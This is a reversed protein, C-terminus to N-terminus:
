GKWNAGLRVLEDALVSPKDSIVGDVGLVVLREIEEPDDITWVHVALGCAHAADVFSQDVVTVSGLRAPVQLAVYRGLDEPPPAGTQLRHYFETTADTGAAIGIGPAWKAFAAVAADSFSAVIVDDRRGHEVLERALTEEYPAVKPATRKIDLNLLVGPFAALVESLTAVGFDRDAPARGRLVYDDAPRGRVADEGPCFWYANDLRRLQELRFLAIDGRADTTRDLTPDHCVVLQGDSTAHVDLEIGTAGHELARRIAFLTSSPAEKAGGQHAYAMVRRELWPNEAM